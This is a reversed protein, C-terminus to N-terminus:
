PPPAPASELGSPTGMVQIENRVTPQSLTRMATHQALQKAYYSFARGKLVLHGDRVEVSLDWVRGRLHQLLTEKAKEVDLLPLKSGNV